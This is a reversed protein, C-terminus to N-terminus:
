GAATAHELSQLLHLYVWPMHAWWSSLHDRADASIPVSTHGPFCYDPWTAGELVMPDDGLLPIPAGADVFNFSRGKTHSGLNLIAEILKQLEGPPLLGSLMSPNNLDTAPIQFTFPVEPVTDKAHYVRFYQQKTALSLNLWNVFSENGSKPSAFTYTKVNFSRDINGSTLWGAAVNAIGGGLSHGTVFLEAGNPLGALAERLTHKGVALEWSLTEFALRFGLHMQPDRMGKAPYSAPTYRENSPLLKHYGELFQRGNGAVLDVSAEADALNLPGTTVPLALFDQISNVLNRTGAFALAYRNTAKHWAILAANIGFPKLGLVSTEFISERWTKGPLHTWGEPWVGETSNLAVGSKKTSCAVPKPNGDKDTQAPLLPDEERRAGLDLEMNVAYALLQLELAERLIFGPEM